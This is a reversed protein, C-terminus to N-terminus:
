PRLLQWRQEDPHLTGDTVAIEFVTRRIEQGRWCYYQANDVFAKHGFGSGTFSDWGQNMVCIM